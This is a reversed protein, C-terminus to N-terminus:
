EPDYEDAPKLRAAAEALAEEAFQALDAGLPHFHQNVLSLPEAATEHLATAILDIRPSDGHILASEFEALLKPVIRQDGAACKGLAYAAAGVVENESDDLARLLEGVVEGDGRSIMGLAYAAQARQGAVRSNLLAQLDPVCIAAPPGIEGLAHAAAIPIDPDSDVLLRGIAQAVPAAAAGHEALQSLALLRHSPSKHILRAFCNEVTPLDDTASAAALDLTTDSTKELFRLGKIMPEYIDLRLHELWSPLTEERAWAFLALAYAHMRMPLYGQKRISWWSFRGERLTRERLASNAVFIGLGLFTPLLDTLRELDDNNDSVLGGGLLIEHALEHALTGVLSEPDQLQSPNLEITATQDPSERGIYRGLPDQDTWDERVDLQLPKDIRMYSCLRDLMDQADDTNGLYEGPFFEDTPEIVRAKLLRDAGLRAALWNMRSEVWVKEQTGLPCRHRFWGFM